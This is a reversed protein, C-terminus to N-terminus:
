ERITTIDATTILSTSQLIAVKTYAPNVRKKAQQKGSEDAMTDRMPAKASLWAALPATSVGGAAADGATDRPSSGIDPM